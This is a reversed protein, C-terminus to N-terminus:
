SSGRTSCQPQDLVFDVIDPSNLAALARCHAKEALHAVTALTAELAARDWLPLVCQRLLEQSLARASMSSIRHREHGHNICYLRTLPANANRAYNGSGVWPTGYFTVRDAERRIVLREDSLVLAGRQAFWEAITSKGTGSAGTFVYGEDRMSLGAAHLLVGGTRALGTLLCVEILPNFLHMPSWGVQGGRLDPLIWARVSRYDPSILARVRPQLTKPDLSEFLLDEGAARLKWCGHAADFRLPGPSLEPLPLAVTVTVHLNPDAAPVLFRDFPRLPWTLCPHGKPEHLVVAHDAIRFALDM